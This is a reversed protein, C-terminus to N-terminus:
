TLMEMILVNTEDWCLMFRARSYLRQGHCALWCLLREQM